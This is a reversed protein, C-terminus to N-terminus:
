PTPMSEVAADIAMRSEASPRVPTGYDLAGARDAQEQWRAIEPEPVASLQFRDPLDEAGFAEFGRKAGVLRGQQPRALQRSLRWILPDIEDASADRWAGSRGPTLLLIAQEFEEAYQAPAPGSLFRYALRVVLRRPNGSQLQRLHKAPNASSAVCVPRESADEAIVYLFYEAM